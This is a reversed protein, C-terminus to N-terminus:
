TRTNSVCFKNKGSCNTVCYFMKITTTKLVIKTELCCFKLYITKIYTSTSNVHTEHHQQVCITAM